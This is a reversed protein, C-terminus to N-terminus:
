RFNEPIVKNYTKNIFDKNFGSNYRYHSKEYEETYESLPVMTYNRENSDFYNIIPETKITKINVKNNEDVEIDLNALLAMQYANDFETSVGDLDADASTFNGMSFFVLTKYGSDNTYWRVPQYCHSHSGLVIDVNLNNLFTALQRQDDRENYQYEQGWHMIAVLVDCKSRIDKIEQEMTNLMEDTIAFPKLSMDRFLGLRWREEPAVYKNTGMAYAVFGIKVGNKEIIKPETREEKTRYSGVPVINTNNYLYDLTSTIGQIGRDASHNNTTGLVEISSEGLMKGIDQSVCFTYNAASLSLKGDTITVELNGVTVDDKTFYKDKVLKLYNNINEGNNLANIYPQEFMVDGILTMNVSKTKNKEEVKKTTTVKNNSNDNETTNDMPTNMFKYFGFCGGIVIIVVAIFKFQKRLKKKRRKAM